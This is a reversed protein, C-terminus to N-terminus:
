EECRFLECPEHTFINLVRNALCDSIENNHGAHAAVIKYAHRLFIKFHLHEVAGRVDDNKM